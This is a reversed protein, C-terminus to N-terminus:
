KRVLTWVCCPWLLVQFFVGCLYSLERRFDELKGTRHLMLNFKTQDWASRAKRFLYYNLVDFQSNAKAFFVNILENETETEPLHNIIVAFRYELYGDPSPTHARQDNSTHERAM